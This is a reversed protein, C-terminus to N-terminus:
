KVVFQPIPPALYVSRGYTYLFQFILVEGLCAYSMCPLHLNYAHSMYAVLMPQHCAHSLCMGSWAHSMGMHMKARCLLMCIVHLVNQMPSVDIIDTYLFVIISKNVWISKISVLHALLSNCFSIHRDDISLVVCGIMAQTAKAELMSTESTYINYMYSDVPVKRDM